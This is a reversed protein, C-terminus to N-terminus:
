RTIEFVLSVHTDYKESDYRKILVKEGRVQAEGTGSFWGVGRRNPRGM